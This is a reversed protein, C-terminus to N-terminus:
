RGSSAIMRDRLALFQLYEDLRERGGDSLARYAAGVRGDGDDDCGGDRGVVADITCGLLDALAWAQRLPITSGPGQPSREWRSYSTAPVGLAAAVERGTRFGAARRLERLPVAGKSGQKKAQDQAM